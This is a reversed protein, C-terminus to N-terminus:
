YENRIRNLIEMRAEFNASNQHFSAVISGMESISYAMLIAGLTLIIMTLFRELSNFAFDNGYSIIVTYYLAAM